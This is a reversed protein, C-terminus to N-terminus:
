TDGRLFRKLADNWAPMVIGARALKRTSLACYRPRRAVLRATDLTLPKMRLPKGLVRAIEEAIGKWSVAGENVCHYTGWPPQRELLARTAAAIDTTYSPSVTRDM